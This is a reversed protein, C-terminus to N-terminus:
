FSLDQGIETLRIVSRLAQEEDVSKKFANIFDVVDQRKGLEALEIAGECGNSPMDLKAGQCVLYEVCKLWGNWAALNVPTWGDSSSVADIDAGMEVMFKLHEFMGSRAFYHLATFDINSDKFNVDVGADIASKVKALDGERIGQLFKVNALDGERLSQWFEVELSKDM